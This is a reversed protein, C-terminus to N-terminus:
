KRLVITFGNGAKDDPDQVAELKAEPRFLGCRNMHFVLEVLDDPLWVSYHSNICEADKISGDHRGILEQLKTRQRGSDFTRDRHPIIM